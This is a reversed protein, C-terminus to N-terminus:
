CCLSTSAIYKCRRHQIAQRHFTSHCCLTNVSAQYQVLVLSLGYKLIDEIRVFVDATGVPISPTWQFPGKGPGVKRCLCLRDCQHPTSLSISYSMRVSEFKVTPVMLMCRLTSTHKPLFLLILTVLSILRSPVLHTSKVTVTTSPFTHGAAVGSLTSNVSTSTDGRLLNKQPDIKLLYPTYEATASILSCIV